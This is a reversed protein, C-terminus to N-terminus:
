SSGKCFISYRTIYHSLSTPAPNKFPVLGVLRKKYLKKTDM